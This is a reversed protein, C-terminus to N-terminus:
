LSSFFPGSTINHFERCGIHVATVKNLALGKEQFSINAWNCSLKRCSKFREITNYPGTGKVQKATHVGM